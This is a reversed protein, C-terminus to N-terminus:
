LILVGEDPTDNAMVLGKESDYHNDRLFWQGCFEEAIDTPEFGKRLYVNVSVLAIRGAIRRWAERREWRDEIDQIASTAERLGPDLKSVIFEIQEGQEPRLLQKVTTPPSEWYAHKKSWEQGLNRSTSLARFYDDALPLIDSEQIENRAALLRRTEQLHIPHYIYESFRRGQTTVLDVIEVTGRDRRGNRNCRGAIQVLSDLPAFDRIILDLDLDVGAEVCQTSIVLCRADARIAEVARRRDIPAVDATVFYLSFPVNNHAIQREAWDRVFRASARTNFTLMVKHGQEQWAKLRPSLDNTFQELTRPTTISMRLIYRNFQSFLNQYDPYLSVAKPLFAPMTASMFLFRTNFRESLIEAAHRFPDWLSCPLTQLEDIIILADILHHFRMQHKSKPHFLAYLFQDYTTIILESRWTDIFFAETASDYRSGYQRDSLSHSTLLTAGDLETSGYGLLRQYEAVTQDIITLFPLVIIIKPRIGTQELRRRREHFAWTAGLLTKGIGTPATLAWMSVDTRNQWTEIVKGRASTRIENIPSDPADRTRWSVWGPDFDVPTRTLHKQADPVALFVKDAELLLSYIFQAALRYHWADDLSLAKLAPILRDDMQKKASSWPKGAFRTSSLTLATEKQLGPFDILPIQDRLCKATEGGFTDRLEEVTPFGSHHAKATMALILHDLPSYESFAEGLHVLLQSLATHEKLVHNGRFGTPNRIYDQFASTGKGLDHARAAVYALQSLRRVEDSNTHWQLIGSIAQSVQEIHESLHLHPHSRLETM